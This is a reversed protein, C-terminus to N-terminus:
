EQLEIKDVKFELNPYELQLRQVEKSLDSSSDIAVRELWKLNPLMEELEVVSLSSQDSVFMATCGPTRIRSWGGRDRDTDCLVSTVLIDAGNLRRKFVKHRISNGPIDVLFCGRGELESAILLQRQHADAISALWALIGAVAFIAVFVFRLSIRKFRSM